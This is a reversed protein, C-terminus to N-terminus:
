SSMRWGASRGTVISSARLEVIYSSQSNEVLLRDVPLDTPYAAVAFRVGFEAVVPSLTLDCPEGRQRMGTISRVNPEARAVVFGPFGDADGVWARVQRSAEIPPGKFGSTVTRGDRSRQIATVLSGTSEFGALVSWSCDLARGSFVPKLDDRLVRKFRRSAMGLLQAGRTLSDGVLRRRLCRSTRRCDGAGDCRSTSALSVLLGAKGTTACSTVTRSIDPQDPRTTTSEMEAETPASRLDSTTARMTPLTRM